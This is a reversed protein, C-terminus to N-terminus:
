TAELPAMNSAKSFSGLSCMSSKLLVYQVWHGVRRSDRAVRVSSAGCRRRVM